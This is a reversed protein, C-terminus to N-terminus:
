RNRKKSLTLLKLQECLFSVSSSNDKHKLNDLISCVQIIINNFSNTKEEKSTPHTSSALNELKEIENIVESLDNINNLTFQM